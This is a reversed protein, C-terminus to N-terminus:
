ARNSLLIKLRVVNDQAESNKRTAEIFRDLNGFIKDGFCEDEEITM